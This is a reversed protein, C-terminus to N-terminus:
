DPDACMSSLPINGLAIGSDSEWQIWLHNDTPPNQTLSVEIPVRSGGELQITGATNWMSSSPGGTWSNNNHVLKGDVRMSMGDDHSVMFRYNGTTPITLYGTIKATFPRYPKNDWFPHIGKLEQKVDGYGVNVGFPLYLTSITQTVPATTADFPLPTYVAQLGQTFCGWKSGLVQCPLLPEWLAECIRAGELPDYPNIDSPSRLMVSGDCSLTNVMGAHRPAIIADWADQTGGKYRLIKATSDAMAILQAESLVRNLCANVGYSQLRASEVDPCAYVATQGDILTGMQDLMEVPSPYRGSKYAFHALARGLQHMNNACQVTRASSRFSQLGPLLLALLLGLVAVVVLLEILTFAWCADSALTHRNGSLPAFRRSVLYDRSGTCNLGYM